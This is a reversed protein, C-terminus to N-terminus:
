ARRAATARALRRRGQAKIDKILVDNLPLVRGARVDAEAEDLLARLDGLQQEQTIDRRELLRLAERVVESPSGYYGTRVKKQILRKLGPTLSVKM